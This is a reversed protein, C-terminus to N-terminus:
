SQLESEVADATGELVCEPTGDVQAFVMMHKRDLSTARVEECPGVADTSVSIARAENPVEHTSGDPMAIRYKM